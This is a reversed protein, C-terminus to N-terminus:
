NEKVTSLLKFGCDKFYAIQEPTMRHHNGLVYNAGSDAFYEKIFRYHMIDMYGEGIDEERQASVYRATRIFPIYGKDALFYNYIKNKLYGATYQPAWGLLFKLKFLATANQSFLKKVEYKQDKSLCYYFSHTKEHLLVFIQAKKKNLYILSTKLPEQEEPSPIRFYHILLEAGRSVAWVALSLLSVTFLPAVADALRSLNAASIFGAAASQLVVPFSVRSIKDLKELLVFKEDANFNCFIYEIKEEKSGDELVEPYCKTNM